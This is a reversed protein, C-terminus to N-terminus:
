QGDRAPGPRSLEWEIADIEPLPSVGLRRLMNQVQARHHAGHTTVHVLATGRRCTTMSGVEMDFAILEGLRGDSLMRQVTQELERCAEDLKVVLEEVSLVRPDAELSPRLPRPEIRDTWRRMAGVVHRLTDHVSGPGIEFHRHFEEETLGRASELLVRTAWENHRLLILETQM